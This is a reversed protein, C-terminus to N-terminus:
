KSFFLFFRPESIEFPLVDVERDCLYAGEGRRDQVFIRCVCESHHHLIANVAGEQKYVIATHLPTLRYLTQPDDDASLLVSDPPLTQLNPNAQRELLRRVLRSLGRKCAVHLASEGQVCVCV